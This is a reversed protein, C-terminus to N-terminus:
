RSAVKVTLTGDPKTGIRVRHEKGPDNLANPSLKPYGFIRNPTSQWRESAAVYEDIEGYVAATLADRDINSWKEDGDLIGAIEVDISDQWISIAIQTLANLLYMCIIDKMLTATAASRIEANAPKVGNIAKANQIIQNQVARPLGRLADTYLGLNTGTFSKSFLMANM